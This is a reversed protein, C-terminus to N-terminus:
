QPENRSWRGELSAVGGAVAQPKAIRLTLTDILPYEEFLRRKLAVLAEEILGFRGRRMEDRISDAVAAYDLFSRTDPDYRYRAELGVRVPQEREREEDLIGLIVSLELDEIRVIM